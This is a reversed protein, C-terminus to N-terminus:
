ELVTSFKDIIRTAVVSDVLKVVEYSPEVLWFGLLEAVGQGLPVKDSAPCAAIRFPEIKLFNHGFLDRIRSVLADFDEIARGGKDSAMIEDLKTLVVAVRQESKTIGSDILAQMIMILESKVAQRELLDLLRRGDVLLTMADARIIESFENCSLIDDTAARYEEGARDALLLNALNATGYGVQLHYFHVEVHPSRVTHPIDRLSVARAHHCAREFAVLSRSSAFQSEGVPGKQFLEFLAAILSTKGAEEPGIIAIVRAEGARLVATADGAKLTEGTPLELGKSTRAKLAATAAAEVNVPRGYHPCKDLALGEICKTTQAVRCDVNACIIPQATEITV